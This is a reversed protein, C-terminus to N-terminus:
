RDQVTIRVEDGNARVEPVYMAQGILPLAHFTGPTEARLTYRMEWTGQQLHDIFMAVKRDRLEQYVYVTANTGQQTAWMPQGSQLAVAEFGGPKLDEFMLYNYDNKADVTVVVEVREGSKITDGDRLAVRDYMVGKLLTPRPQLRFYERRVFMENGAAKVPEELSVFRAEAAFYLPAKGGTRRIRIEQETDRLLSADVSFRSPTRLVDAATLQKTAVVKGNVSLEYAVDGSLEGSRELYETLALLSIATDRTNNWQAGRRNKVLWNMAPEVLKHKPDITALARLVFATTEVPSDYWRWWFRQSSGWHATALSDAEDDAARELKVGDELNRVLVATRERDGYRHATLALLARSYASLRERNAYVDDYAKREAASIKGSRWASLAHLMWTQDNWQNRHEVLRNTLWTAARDIAATNVRLGAERALSFGWIVYATMWDDSNGDKWWGWGGDGHQMDYLRTMGAATVADLDKKPLRTSPDLGLKELTRAVIVAPLFRSMTQETCGYPFEILYPLADLMTTALSPAIQVTLDTARRERPLELRIVSLDGRMKGSKAILKDIGHEYVVFPKEMADGLQANRATVRLKVDGAQTASVIWDARAESRADVRLTNKPSEVIQLAAGDIKLEPTVTVAADTNNNVVASVTVRDGAVFFRPAQLRVLLPLNTKVTSSGMGFSAGTTAARATARWTTLAEPFKVTVKAIGNADTIVDPKWLATSRFDSRVEVEIPVAENAVASTAEKRAGKAMLPPPPPAVPAPPPMSAPAQATVSVEQVMDAAVGGVMGGVVGGPVGGEVGGVVGEDEGYEVGDEEGPKPPPVPKIMKYQQTHLAASVYIRQEWMENYFFQRPDGAPDTGIATVAEDSVSIAVEAAVPKGDADRTTITLAGEERPQYQERDAKVDVALFHEAPPVVVRTTETDLRIDFVSSATLFFNPEFREDLPIQVLKATGDMHIIRTDILTDTSSTLMVWRGSEPAVIMANATEGARMSEKDVILHIGSAQYYGIDKTDRDAVWVTTEAIVRDRAKGGDGDLSTWKVAYYGATKPTFTLMAEGNADTDLKTTLVNEEVYRRERWRRKTVVVTGTTRVPQDNADIAKFRVDVHENPRHLYHEPYAMVSYRQRTVRVNGEGRVERRSADVVRAEIRYSMDHGDRPTQIRVVARGNVDTRLIERSMVNQSRQPRWDPWYWDYTRWPYWYRVFPEQYVVAEVEANAVPGGFYYQADITAEITDGLRYQLGPPTSVSVTFEPLKYEELRFLQAAGVHSSGRQFRISYAGLPMSSTLPLDAWFSGFANLTATGNAIKENRPSYIEWTLTENSPTRWRGGERVRALIKWQVTENPRYAPRDTFAYIRWRENDDRTSFWPTWTAHYAQRAGASATVLMNGGNGTVLDVFGEANTKGSVEYPKDGGRTVRVAAGAIPEGSQVDSVFIHSRGGASHVLIHADTVLLVAHSTENGSRASLLYAGVPLKPTVDLIAQGPRHKGDDNTDYTWRRVVPKGAFQIGDIWSKRDDSWRADRTLDVARLTLEIQKTNRWALFIEQESEPLFTDTSGVTVAVKTIEAIAREADDVFESEGTAFETTLRRYLELAKVFDNQISSAWLYLADDYWESKKGLKVIEGLLEFGRELSVESRENVYQTALYFQARARDQPTDAIQIVNVLIERPLPNRWPHDAMRWVISLYRKRARPIDDSGAWWDLAAMYFRQASYPNQISPHTAYYDGLSENAEAGIWDQTKAVEELAQRAAERKTSDRDPSAADARWATDGLRFNVWRTEEASLKLKAAEEYLAHARSFSKEAYFREAESRVADYARGSAQPPAAGAAALLLLTATFLVAFIKRLM